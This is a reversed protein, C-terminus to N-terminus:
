SAHAMKLGILTPDAQVKKHTKIAQGGPPYTVFNM